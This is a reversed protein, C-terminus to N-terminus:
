YGRKLFLFTFIRLNWRTNKRNPGKRDEGLSCWSQVSSAAFCYNHISFTHGTDQIRRRTSKPDSQLGAKKRIKEEKLFVPIPWKLLRCIGSQTSNRPTESGETSTPRNKFYLSVFLSSSETKVFSSKYM